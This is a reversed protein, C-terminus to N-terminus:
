KVARLRTIAANTAAVKKQGTDAIAEIVNQVVAVIAEASMGDPGEVRGGSLQHAKDLAIAAATMIHKQDAYRPKALKANEISTEHLQDLLANAEEYLRLATDTRYESLTKVAEPSAPVKTKDHKLGAAKAWREITRRTVSAHDAAPGPGEDIYLALAQAKVQGPQKSM